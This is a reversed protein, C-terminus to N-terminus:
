YMMQATSTSTLTFPGVLYMEPFWQYTVTVSVTNGIPTEANEEVRLPWNNENWTVTYSLQAPNLGFAGPLIANNYVDAPTAAPQGTEDEYQGGRVSAWRAGERAAAAVTQYRFVGLGGVIIAFVLFFVIPCTVGFEITTTGRRRHHVAASM